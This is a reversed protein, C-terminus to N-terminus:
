GAMSAPEMTFGIIPQAGQALGLIPMFMITAISMMIGVASLAIDGSYHIITKNLILQQVSNAVQM